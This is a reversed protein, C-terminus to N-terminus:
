SPWTVTYKKERESASFIDKKVVSLCAKNLSGGSWCGAGSPCFRHGLGALSRAGCSRLPVCRQATWAQSPCKCLSLLSRCTAGGQSKCLTFPKVKGGVANRVDCDLIGINRRKQLTTQPSRPWRLQTTPCGLARPYGPLELPLFCNKLESFNRGPPGPPAGWWRLGLRLM